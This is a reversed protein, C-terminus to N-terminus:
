GELSGNKNFMLQTSNHLPRSVRISIHGENFFHTPLCAANMKINSLIHCNCDIFSVTRVSVPLAAYGRM